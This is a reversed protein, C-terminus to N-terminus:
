ECTNTLLKRDCTVNIPDMSTVLQCAASSNATTTIGSEHESKDSCITTCIAMDMTRKAASSMM